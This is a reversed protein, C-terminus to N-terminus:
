WKLITSLEKVITYIDMGHYRPGITLLTNHFGANPIQEQVTFVHKMPMRQNVAGMTADIWDAKRVANVVDAHAGEFPTVKHHWYIIDHLLQGEEVSTHGAFAEAARKCGPELYDLRKDTWLGIDHYVLGAAIVPLYKSDGGLYHMTYTLVRYIHGRYGDYDSGIMEKYPILLDDVYPSYSFVKIPTRLDEHDLRLIYVAVSLMISLFLM